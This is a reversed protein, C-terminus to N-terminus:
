LGFGDLYAPNVLDLLVFAAAVVSVGGLVARGSRALAHSAGVASWAYACLVLPVMVVGLWLFPGANGAEYHSALAGGVLAVYAGFGAAIPAFSRLSPGLTRARTGAPGRKRLARFCAAGVLGVFVAIEGLAGAFLVRRRALHEVRLVFRPDLGAAHSRAERRAEDLAGLAIDADVLEREALRATLADANLDSEVLRLPVLALDPRHLRGVWAEAVLMRAEVRVRGPPFEMAEDDLAAIVAPDDARAPDRRVRELLALPAFDGEARATLWEIRQRARTAWASDPAAAVAAQDRALASAFAGRDEDLQGLLFLAEAVAEADDAAAVARLAAARAAEADPHPPSLSVYALAVARRAESATESAGVNRSFLTFALAFALCFAVRFSHVTVAGLLASARLVVGLSAGTRMALVVFM